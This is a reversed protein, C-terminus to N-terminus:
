RASEYTISTCLRARGAELIEECEIFLLNSIINVPDISFNLRERRESITIESIGLEVM